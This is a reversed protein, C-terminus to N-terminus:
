GLAPLNIQQRGQHSVPQAVVFLYEGLDPLAAKQPRPDIADQVLNAVIHIEFGPLFMGDLDHDVAEHYPRIKAFTERFREVGRELHSSAMDDNRVDIIAIPVVLGVRRDQFARAAM